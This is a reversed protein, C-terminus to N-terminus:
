QGSAVPTLTATWTLNGSMSLDPLYLPFTTESLSGYGLETLVESVVPAFQEWMSGQQMIQQMDFTVPCAVTTVMDALHLSAVPNCILTQRRNMGKLIPVPEGFNIEIPDGGAALQLTLSSIGNIDSSTVSNGFGVISLIGYEDVPYGITQNENQVADALKSYLYFRNSQIATAGFTLHATAGMWGSMQREIESSLLCKAIVYNLSQERLAAVVAAAQAEFENQFTIFKLSLDVNGVVKPGVEATIQELLDTVDQSVFSTEIGSYLDRSVLGSLYNQYAQQQDENAAYDFRSIDTRSVIRKLQIPCDLPHDRDVVRENATFGSQAPLEQVCLYFMDNDEFRTSPLKLCLQDLTLTASQNESRYILVQEGGFLESSANAVFIATYSQSDLLTDRLALRQAWTMNGGEEADGRRLPWQTEPGIDPIDRMKVLQGQADYLLYQLSRIRENAPLDDLYARTTSTSTGVGYDVVYRNQGAPQVDMEDVQQTCAVSGLLLVQLGIIPLLIKM